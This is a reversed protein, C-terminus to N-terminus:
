SPKNSGQEIAIEADLEAQESRHHERMTQRKDLYHMAISTHSELGQVARQILGLKSNDYGLASSKNLAAHEQSEARVLTGWEQLQRKLLEIRLTLHKVDLDAEM